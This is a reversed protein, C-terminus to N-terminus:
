TAFVVGPKNAPSHILNPPDPSPAKWFHASILVRCRRFGRGELALPNGTENTIPRDDGATTTSHACDEVTIDVVAGKLRAFGPLDLFLLVARGEIPM